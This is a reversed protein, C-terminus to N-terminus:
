RTRRTPGKSRGLAAKRLGRQGVWLACGGEAVVEAHEGNGNQVAECHGEDFFRCNACITSGIVEPNYRASLKTPPAAWGNLWGKPARGIVRRGIQKGRARAKEEKSKEALIRLAGILETLLM